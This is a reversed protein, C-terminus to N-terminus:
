EPGRADWEIQEFVQRLKAGRQPNLQELWNLRGELHRRFDPVGARNQGQPDGRMCNHFIAKLTDFATRDMNCHDNVVVGTVRQRGHRPMVRTKMLNLRFGEESVIQAVAKDFRPLSRAFELPGSFALDDAYRSYNAGAARALGHLRQDLRWTLLNALAPSTPAGQPLHRMGYTARLASSEASATSLRDIVSNPTRTTCLGTLARAVSWPYGLSRFIGHVRPAGVSPFFAALDFTAVVAEGAHVQAGTLCSRGAVFGHARDHVPVPTLIERLIRRQIAKLRTKPAELLRPKGFRDRTLTHHYHLM